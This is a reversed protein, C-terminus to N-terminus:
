RPVGRVPLRALAFGQNFAAHTILVFKFQAGTLAALAGAAALLSAAAAQGPVGSAVLAVLAIPLAAGFWFLIRGSRDILSLARSSASASLRHRWGRWLVIRVLLLAAFLAMLVVSRAPLWFAAIWFLGAGESLGTAVILPVLMPERWTPIGKAAQLMRAQCYVFLLAVVAVVPTLARAGAAAAVGLGFLLVGVGAERTM